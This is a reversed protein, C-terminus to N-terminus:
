NTAKANEIMEIVDNFPHKVLVSEGITLIMTFDNKHENLGIIASTFLLIRQDNNGTFIIKKDM